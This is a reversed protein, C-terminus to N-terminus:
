KKFSKISIENITIVQAESDRTYRINFKVYSLIGGINPYHYPSTEYNIFEIQKKLNWNQFEKLSNPALM